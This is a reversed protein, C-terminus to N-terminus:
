NYYQASLEILKLWRDQMLSDKDFLNDNVPTKFKLSSHQRLFNFFCVYLVMYDNACKLTHYGNTGYYNQKYTRNLREEIQKYPRYEKSEKDKNKVGIVQKLTFDIGNIHFFLQAANYIPNGDTILLLNEPINKYKSLCDYISQCANKTDRNAYITYSTIIKTHPDSWFFVYQNKGRVKIYTEDGSLTNTLQYPYNDVLPKVLKSVKSAYNVVTQHSIKLGHVQRLILATKRSSLGYNVYYTLVLGLVKQDFHIKNLNFDIDEHNSITKLTNMDFKFDRYHYHFRYQKSTTELEEYRGEKYLKKKEKYYPCKTGPCIYVVYGIRDHHNSLKRVCYPCYIGAEDSATTKVTFTNRCVKCRYQGRSNNDYIYEHPAGCFPCVGEFSFDPRYRVPKIEKGAKLAEELLQEFNLTQVTKEFIPAKDITFNAYPIMRDNSSSKQKKILRKIEKAILPHLVNIYDDLRQLSNQCDQVLNLFDTNNIKSNLSDPISDALILPEIQTFFIFASSQFHKFLEILQPISQVPHVGRNQNKTTSLINHEDRKTYLFPFM